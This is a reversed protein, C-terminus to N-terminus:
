LLSLLAQFCFCAVDPMKRTTWVVLGSSLARRCQSISSEGNNTAIVALGFLNSLAFLNRRPPLETTPELPESVKLTVGNNLVALNFYQKYKVIAPRTTAHVHALATLQQGHM